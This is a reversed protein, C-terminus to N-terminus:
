RSSVVSSGDLVVISWLRWTRFLTALLDFSSISWCPEPVWFSMLPSVSTDLQGLCEPMPTPSGSSFLALWTTIGASVVAPLVPPPLVLVLLVAFASHSNWSLKFVITPVRAALQVCLAPMCRLFHIRLLVTQIPEIKCGSKLWSLCFSYTVTANQPKRLLNQLAIDVPQIVLTSFQFVQTV